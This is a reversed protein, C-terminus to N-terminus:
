IIALLVINFTKKNNGRKEGCCKKKGKGSFRQRENGGM